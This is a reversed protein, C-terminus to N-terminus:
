NDGRVHDCNLCEGIEKISQTNHFDKYEKKCTPCSQLKNIEKITEIM